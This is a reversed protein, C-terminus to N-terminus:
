IELLCSSPIEALFRSPQNSYIKSNFESREECRTLYLNEQARTMAVYMLRREEELGALTKLSRESPLITEEVGILFVTNFELGKSSHITMLTIGTEEKKRDTQLSVTALFDELSHNGDAEFSEVLRYFESILELEDQSEENERKSLREQKLTLKMIQDVGQILTEDDTELWQILDDILKQQVPRFSFEKLMRLPSYKREKAQKLIEKVTKDGIGSLQKCIRKFSMDDRPNKKFKMFALLDKIVARDYFSVGLTTYPIKAELLAQEILRSQSNKRYLVAIEEYEFGINLHFKIMDIVWEAEEKPDHCLHYAIPSGPERSTFMTKDNRVTNHKIVHNSATIINGCSRYNQELKLIQTREFMQEFYILYEPKANRFAYISHDDDGVMLLNNNGVLLRVLEFQSKNTDQSEDVSIYKIHEHFWTRVEEFQTLLFVTYLILDDFDLTRNKLNRQHYLQYVRVIQLDEASLDTRNLLSSPLILESKYHSIKHRLSKFVDSDLKINHERLLEKLRQNVDGEDMITFKNLKMHFGFQRLIKVCISHFTGLWMEDVQDTIAAIREKIENAAKNTFTVIMIQSPPIELEQIMYATRFKIVTTKGSGAGAVLSTNKDYSNLVAAKQQPNLTSLDTKM